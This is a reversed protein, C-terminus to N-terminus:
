DQLMLSRPAVVVRETGDKLIVRDALVSFEHEIGDDQIVRIVIPMTGYPAAAPRRLEVLEIKM